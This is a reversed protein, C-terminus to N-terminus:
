IRQFTTKFKKLFIWRGARTRVERFKKKLHILINQSRPSNTPFKLSNKKSSFNTRNPPHNRTPVLTKRNRRKIHRPRKSFEFNDTAYRRVNKQEYTFTATVTENKKCNLAYRTACFFFFFNQEGFFFDVSRNQDSLKKTQRHTSREAWQTEPEPSHHLVLPPPPCNNLGGAPATLQRGFELKPWWHPLQKRRCFTLESGVQNENLFSAILNRPKHVAHSESQALNRTFWGIFWVCIWNFSAM